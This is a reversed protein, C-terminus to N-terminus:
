PEVSADQARLLENLKDLGQKIMGKSVTDFLRQGVSAVKGGVQVEGSYKMLTAREGQDALEIDGTGKLFGIKGDGEVTLTCSVPPVEDTVLLKGAFAGSLPGIRLTMEGAYETDSVKQVSQTGPLLTAIVEPDRVLKWVAERPGDFAYEGDIKM